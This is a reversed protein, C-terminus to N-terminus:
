VDKEVLFWSITKASNKTLYIQTLLSFLEKVKFENAKDTRCTTVSFEQFQSSSVQTDELGIYLLCNIVESIVYIFINSHLVYKVLNPVQHQQKSQM